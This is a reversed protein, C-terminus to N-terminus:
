AHPIANGIRSFPLRSSIYTRPPNPTKPQASRYYIHFLLSIKSSSKLSGLLNIRTNFWSTSYTKWLMLRRLSVATQGKSSQLIKPLNCNQSNLKFKQLPKVLGLIILMAPKSSRLSPLLKRYVITPLFIPYHTDINERRSQCLFRKPKLCLDNPQSQLRFPPHHQAECGGLWVHLLKHM